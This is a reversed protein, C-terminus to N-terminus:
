FADVVERDLYKNGFRRKSLKKTNCLLLQMMKISDSGSAKSSVAGTEVAGAIAKIKL